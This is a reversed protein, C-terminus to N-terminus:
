ILLYTGAHIGECIIHEIKFIVKLFPHESKDQYLFVAYFAASYASHDQKQNYIPSIHMIVVLTLLRKM